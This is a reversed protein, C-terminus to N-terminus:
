KIYERSAAIDAEFTKRYEAIIDTSYKGATLQARTNNMIDEFDSSCKSLVQNAQAMLDDRAKDTTADLYKAALTILSTKCSNRLAQLKTETQSTIQEYTLKTEGTGGTTGGGGIGPLSTGGGNYGASQGSVTKTVPDWNITTGMSESLFRIPVYISGKYGYISQGAPLPTVKGNFVLTAKVPSITINISAQPKQSGSAASQLQKKLAELEKETPDSITAKGGDWNVSKQLAYSIYRIPVYTRGQYIFSYQGEPLKLAQGDFMLNIPQTKTQITTTAAAASAALVSSLMMLALFVSLIRSKKM